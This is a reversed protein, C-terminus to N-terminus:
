VKVFPTSEVKLPNFQISCFLLALIHLTQGCFLSMRITIM